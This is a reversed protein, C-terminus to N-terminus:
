PLTHPVGRLIAVRHAFFFYVSLFFGAGGPRGKWHM